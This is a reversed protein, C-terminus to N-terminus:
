HILFWSEGNRSSYQLAPHQPHNQNKHFCQHAQHVAEEAHRRMHHIQLSLLHFM